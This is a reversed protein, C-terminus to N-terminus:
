EYQKMKREEERKKRDYEKAIHDLLNIAEAWENLPVNVGYAIVNLAEVARM